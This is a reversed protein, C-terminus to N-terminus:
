PASLSARKGRRNREGDWKVGEEQQSCNQREVPEQGLKKQNRRGEAKLLYAPYIVHEDGNKFSIFVASVWGPSSVM